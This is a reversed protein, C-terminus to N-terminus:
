PPMRVRKSALVKVEKNSFYKEKSLYVDSNWWVQNDCISGPWAMEVLTIKATNDSVFLAKIAYNGKQIFYDESNLAFALPCLNGDILGVFNVFGHAQKLMSGIQKWEEEDPWRIVKKQLKLVAQSVWIVCDNIAGKSIGMAWSIKQLSTENGYSGLYKLFVMIHLMFPWKDWKGWCKNIVELLEMLQHICARDMRFNSLFEDDTIYMGDYLM